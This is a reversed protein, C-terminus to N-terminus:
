FVEQVHVVSRRIATEAVSRDIAGLGVAVLAYCVFGVPPVALLSLPGSAVLTDLLFILPGVLVATGVIRVPRLDGIPDFGIKRASRLHLFLMSGYGVSTAIAAGAMGYRPILLLNLGLNLTAAAGTALILSRLDGKGQGIAIIPRAVAYCLSGPLLVLLPLVAPSFEGGFYLPVFEDALAALGIAVLITLLLTYRTTRSAIESIREHEGAEWLQSTSHLLVTQVAFPVFWLFEAVVLAAKYFGTQQSGALPQLLLVDVHYMSSSLLVLLISLSNYDILSRGPFDDPMSRFVARLSVRSSLLSFAAVTVVIRALFRGVLAGTIGWGLWVLPLGIAGFLLWRIVHLSESLHEDGFGMLASRAFAFSQQAIVLLALLRFYRAFGAGFLDSVLPTLSAAFVLAAVIVGQVVAVRLYFGYVNAQWGAVDRKEAIFKRTGDFIGGKAFIMVIGLLSLLFAYDGYHASGLLRVLVPTIAISLLLQGVRGGLISLFGRLMGNAM